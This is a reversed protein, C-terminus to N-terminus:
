LLVSYEPVQMHHKKESQVFNPPGWFPSSISGRSGRSGGGGGVCVCVSVGM